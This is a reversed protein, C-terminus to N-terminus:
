KKPTMYKFVSTSPIRALCYDLLIRIGRVIISFARITRSGHTIMRAVRFRGHRTYALDTGSKPTRLSLGRCFVSSPSGPSLFPVIHYLYEHNTAREALLDLCFPFVNTVESRYALPEFREMSPHTAEFVLSHLRIRVM